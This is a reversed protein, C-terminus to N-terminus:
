VDDRKLSLGRIKEDFIKAGGKMNFIKKLLRVRSNTIAQPTSGLLIGLESPLFRLKVLVCIIVDNHSLTVGEREIAPIFEPIHRNVTNILNSLDTDSAARGCAAQKHLKTVVPMDLLMDDIKAEDLNQKDEQYESLSEQLLKIERLKDAVLNESDRKQQRLIALEARNQRLTQLDAYYRNNLERIEKEKRQHIKSIVTYAGLLCVVLVAIVIVLWMRATAAEETKRNAVEKSATYDYLSQLQQLNETARINYSSDVLNCYLDTYKLVSDMVGMMGYMRRLGNSGNVMNVIPHEIALEKRFYIEASDLRGTGLYYKGKLYYYTENGRSINGEPDFLGSDAEYRAMYERVEDFRGEKLLIAIVWDLSMAAYEGYGYREYLRSARMSNELVLDPRRMADYCNSRLEECRLATITDCAIWAYRIAHNLNLLVSATARQLQFIYATQSYIRSLTEFDCDSSTTDARSVAEKYCQLTQPADMRDRYACGLLYYALMGDNSDGNRDYYDVARKIADFDEDSLGALAGIGEMNRLRISLMVYRMRGRESLSGVDGEVMALIAAVSDPETRVLGSAEDLLDDYRSAKSCGGTMCILLSLVALYFIKVNMANGLYVHYFFRVPMM